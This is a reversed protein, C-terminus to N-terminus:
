HELSDGRLHKVFEEFVSDNIKFGPFSPHNRTLMLPYAVNKIRIEYIKGKVKTCGSFLRSCSTEKKSNINMNRNITTNGWLIIFDPCLLSVIKEVIVESEDFVDKLSSRPPTERTDILCQLYNIFSVHNWFEKNSKCDLYELIKEEFRNYTEETNEGRIHKNMSYTNIDCLSGEAVSCSSNVSKLKDYKTIRVCRSINPCDKSFSRICYRSAGIILVKRRKVDGKLLLGEAYQDGVWPKFFLEKNKYATEVKKQITM